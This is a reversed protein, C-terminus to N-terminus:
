IADDEGWNPGPDVKQVLNAEGKETSNSLLFYNTILWKSAYLVYKVCKSLYLYVHDLVRVELECDSSHKCIYAGM